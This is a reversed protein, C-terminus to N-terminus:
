GAFHNRTHRWLQGRSRGSDRHPRGTTSSPALRHDQGSSRRHERASGHPQRQPIRPKRSTVRAPPSVPEAHLSSRARASRRETDIQRCGHRAGRQPPSRRAQQHLGPLSDPDPLVITGPPPIPPKPRAPPPPVYPRYPGYVAENGTVPQPPTPKAPEPPPEPAPTVNSPTWPMSGPATEGLEQGYEILIASRQSLLTAAAIAADKDESASEDGQPLQLLPASRDPSPETLAVLVESASSPQAATIPLTTLVLQPADAKAARGAPAGKATPTPSSPLLTSAEPIIIREGPLRAAAHHLALLLASEAADHSVPGSGTSSTGAPQPPLLIGAAGRSLWHGATATMTETASDQAPRHLGIVLRIHRRSSEALLDDFGADEFPLQLVIADIGLSQLYDLRQAIGPLDGVGDGDSDQFHEPAIRYFVANRWWPETTATFGPRALTQAHAASGCSLLTAAILRTVVFRSRPPM